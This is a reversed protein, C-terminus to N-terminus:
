LQDCEEITVFCLCIYIKLGIMATYFTLFISNKVSTMIKSLHNQIFQRYTVYICKNIPINFYINTNM